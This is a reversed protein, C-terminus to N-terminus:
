EAEDGEDVGTQSGDLSLASQLTAIAVLCARREEPTGVARLALGTLYGLAFAPIELLGPLSKNQESM